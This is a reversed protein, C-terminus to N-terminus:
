QIGIGATQDSQGQEYPGSQMQQQDPPQQSISQAASQIMQQTQPTAAAGGMTRGLAETMKYAAQAMAPSPQQQQAEAMRQNKYALNHMHITLHEYQAPNAGQPSKAVEGMHVQYHKWDDDTERVPVRVNKSLVLNEEEPNTEKIGVPLDENIQDERFGLLSLIRRGVRIKMDVPADAGITNLFNILAQARVSKDATSLDTTVMIDVRAQLDEPTVTSWKLGGEGHVRIIEDETKYQRMLDRTNEVTPIFIDNVFRQFALNLVQQGQSAGLRASTATDASSLGQADQTITVRRMYAQLRDISEFADDGSASSKFPLIGDAMTSFQTDELNVPVIGNARNGKQFDQDSIKLREDVFYSGFCNKKKAVMALYFFGDLLEQMCDQRMLPSNGYFMGDTPYFRSANYPRRQSYLWNRRVGILATQNCTTLVLDKQPNLLDDVTLPSAPSNWADALEQLDDTTISDRSDTVLWNPIPNTAWLEYCQLTPYGTTVVTQQQSNISFNTAATTQNLATSGDHEKVVTQYSQAQIEVLDLFRYVGVPVGQQEIGVIGQIPQGTQPDVGVIGMVPIDYQKVQREDAKLEAYTPAFYEWVYNQEPWQTSRRLKNSVGFDRIDVIKTVPNIELKPTRIEQEQGEITVRQIEDIWKKAVFSKVITAPYCWFRLIADNMVEKFSTGMFRGQQDLQYAIANRVIKARELDAENYPVCEFPKDSAFLGASFNAVGFNVTSSAEPIHFGSEHWEQVEKEPMQTREGEIGVWDEWPQYWPHMQYLSSMREACRIEYLRQAKSTNVAANAFDLLKQELKTMRPKPRGADSASSTTTDPPAATQLM